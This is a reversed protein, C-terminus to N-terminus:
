KQADKICNKCINKKYIRQSYAVESENMISDCKSCVIVNDDDSVEVQVTPLNPDNVPKKPAPNPDRGAESKYVTKGYIDSAFGLLSACKKLADSHASKLDDGIDVPKRTGDKPFKIDSSGSQMKVISYKGDASHVTLKGTVWLQDMKGTVLQIIESPTPENVSEYEWNWGFNFNLWKICYSVNVYDFEQGGRGKRKYVQERPTSQLMRLLQNESLWTKQMTMKKGDKMPESLDTVTPIVLDTEKKQEVRVVIEHKVPSFAKKVRNASQEVNLKFGKASSKKQVKNKM